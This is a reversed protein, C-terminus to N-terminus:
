IKKAEKHLQMHQDTKYVSPSDVAQELTQWSSIFCVFQGFVDLVLNTCAVLQSLNAVPAEEGCKGAWKPPKLHNTMSDVLSMM